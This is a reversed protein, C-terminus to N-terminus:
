STRVALPLTIGKKKKKKFPAGELTAKKESPCGSLPLDKCQIVQPLPINTDNVLPAQTLITPFRHVVEKM